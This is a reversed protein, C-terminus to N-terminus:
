KPLTLNALVTHGSPVSVPRSSQLPPAYVLRSPQGTEPNRETKLVVWNPHRAALDYVGSPVFPFHFRGDADTVAYYPHDCVFLEAAQWYYGAASTLEVEGCTPFTRTLPRDPDPFPLSFFAAGRARLANFVPEASRMAVADGARVFGARDTRAGQKVAIQADRFEVEVPPLDWPRARAPDVERLFVIAGGVGRTFRDIRPANALAHSSTEVGTGDARLRDFSVRAVEPVPGVWTVLGTVHGCDARNFSRPAAPKAPAEDASRAVAPPEAGCGGACVVAVVACLWLLPRAM